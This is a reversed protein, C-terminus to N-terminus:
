RTMLTEDSFEPHSLCFKYEGLQAILLLAIGFLGLLGVGVLDIVDPDLQWKGLLGGFGWGSCYCKV